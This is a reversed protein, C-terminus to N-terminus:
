KETYYAVQYVDYKQRIIVFVLTKSKDAVSPLQVVQKGDLGEYESTILEENAKAHAKLSNVLTNYYGEGLKEILKKKNRLAFRM